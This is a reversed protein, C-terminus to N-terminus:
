PITGDPLTRVHRAIEGATTIWIDDRRAVIAQLARRLHRMRYPQGVLYPHLAIGMVLSQKRSQLLMEEFNDIIMDAFQDASDKRGAISPIDNLEQPYPVSLIRKGNRTAFWIPQDDMCWDLLYEYGAEALLDPTLPSQSIWPGLWGTPRKGEAQIITDTSEKILDREEAESLQGQRESNTRGHGVIECGRERFADMVEPCYHYISSNVLVSVPLSLEDFLDILRWVGVRNGYDRWSFNLVDPHPGGPALEAGLGEGFAFHELNLGIYVALQKNGPWVFHPRRTIASYHYRGHHKLLLRIDKATANDVRTGHATTEGTTRANTKDNM